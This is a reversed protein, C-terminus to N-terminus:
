QDLSADNGRIRPNVFVRERSYTFWGNNLNIIDSFRLSSTLCGCLLLPIAFSLGSESFCFTEIMNGIPWSLTPTKGLLFSFQFGFFHYSLGFFVQATVTGLVLRHMSSLMYAPRGRLNMPGRYSCGITAPISSSLLYSVVSYRKLLHATDTRCSQTTSTLRKPPARRPRCHRSATM